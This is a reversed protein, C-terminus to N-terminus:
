VLYRGSVKIGLTNNQKTFTFSKQPSTVSVYTSNYESTGTLPVGGQPSQAFLRFYVSATSKNEFIITKADFRLIVAANIFAGYAM